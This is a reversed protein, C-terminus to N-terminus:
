ADGRSRTSSTLTPASGMSPLCCRRVRCWCGTSRRGPWGCRAAGAVPFGYGQHIDPMALAAERVGPLTAVNQLQELSQDAAIEDLLERDAFVRAPVRMDSRVEAPIEWLTADLRRPKPHAAVTESM